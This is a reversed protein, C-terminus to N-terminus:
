LVEVELLAISVLSNLATDLLLFVANLSHMCGMLQLARSCLFTLLFEVLSNFCTIIKSWANGLSQIIPGTRVIYLSLEYIKSFQLSLMYLILGLLVELLNFIELV